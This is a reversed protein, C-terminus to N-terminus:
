QLKRFQFFFVNALLVFLFHVITCPAGRAPHWARFCQGPFPSNGEFGSLKEHSVRELFPGLGWGCELRLTHQEEYHSLRICGFGEMEMGVQLPLPGLSVLSSSCRAPAPARIQSNFFPVSSSALLGVSHVGRPRTGGDVGVEQEGSSVGLPHDHLLHGWLFQPHSGALAEAPPCM